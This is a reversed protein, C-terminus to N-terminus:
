PGPRPRPRFREIGERPSSASDTVGDASLGFDPADSVRVVPVRPAALRYQSFQPASVAWRMRFSSRRDPAPKALTRPVARQRTQWQVWENSCTAGCVTSTLWITESPPDERRVCTASGGWRRTATPDRTGFAGSRRLIWRISERVPARTVNASASSTAVSQTVRSAPVTTGTETISPARVTGWRRSTGGSRDNRTPSSITTSSWGIRM